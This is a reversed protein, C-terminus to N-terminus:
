PNKTLKEFLKFCEAVGNDSDPFRKMIETGNSLTIKVCYPNNEAVKKFKEVMIIHQTNVSTIGDIAIFM